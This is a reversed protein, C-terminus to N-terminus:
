NVLLPELDKIRLIEKLEVEKFLVNGLRDKVQGELKANEPFDVPNSVYLINEKALKSYKNFSPLNQVFYVNEIRDISVWGDKDISYNVDTKDQYKKPDYKNFFLYFIYQKTDNLHKSIYIRDYSNRKSYVDGMLTKYGFHSYVSYFDKYYTVYNVFFSFVSLLIIFFFSGFVAYRVSLIKIKKFLTLLFYFGSGEVIILFPLMLSARAYHGGGTLSDPIPSILLLFLLLTNEKTRKIILYACGIILLFAEFIFGLGREPLISYQTPNGQIYLFNFSFHSFYNQIFNNTFLIAKNETAKCLISPYNKLCAGRKDNLTNILGISNINNIIGVQSFRVGATLKSNIILPLFLFIFLLFGILMEKKMSLLVKRYFYIIILIVLPTFLTYASYTYFTLSFFLVSLYLFYKKKENYLFYFIFLLGLLLFTIAINPELAVRSLGISWPSIAFLLAAFLAKRKDLIKKILFYLIVVSLAGFLASPLRISFENLGFIKIPLLSLYIYAPLRYDGFEKFNIPLFVGWQDRGTLLVSYADYGLSAEDNTLGIPVEGLKNTRLFLALIFIAFLFIYIKKMKESDDM